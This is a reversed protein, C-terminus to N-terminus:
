KKVALLGIGKGSEKWVFHALFYKLESAEKAYKRYQGQFHQIEIIKIDM